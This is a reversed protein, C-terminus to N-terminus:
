PFRRAGVPPYGVEPSRAGIAVGSAAARAPSRKRQRQTRRGRGDDPINQSILLVTLRARLGLGAPGSMAGGLGSSDASRPPNAITHESGPSGAPRFGWVLAPLSAAAAPRKVIFPRPRRRSRCAAARDRPRPALGCQDARSTGTRADPHLPLLYSRHSMPKRSSSNALGRRYRVTDSIGNHRAPSPAVVGIAIIGRRSGYQSGGDWTDPPWHAVSAILAGGLLLWSLVIASQPGVLAEVRRPLLFVLLPM